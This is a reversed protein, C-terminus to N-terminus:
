ALAPFSSLPNADSGVSWSIWSGGERGGARGGARRGTAQLGAPAAASRLAPRAQLRLRRPRRTAPTVTAPEKRGPDRDGPCVSSRPCGTAVAQEHIEARPNKGGLYPIAGSAGGSGCPVRPSPSGLSAQHLQFLQFLCAPVESHPDCFAHFCPSPPDQFFCPSARRRLAARKQSPPLGCLTPTLVRHSSHARRTKAVQALETERLWRSQTQM